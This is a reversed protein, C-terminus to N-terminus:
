LIQDCGNAYVYVAIVWPVSLQAQDGAAVHAWMSWMTEKYAQLGPGVDGLLFRHVLYLFSDLMNSMAQQLIKINYAQKGAEKAEEESKGAGLAAKRAAHYAASKRSVRKKADEKKSDEKAGSTSSKNASNKNEADLVTAPRKKGPKEEVPVKAAKNQAKEKNAKAVRAKNAKPTDVVDVVSTKTRAKKKLPLEEETDKIKSGKAHKRPVKDAKQKSSDNSGQAMDAKGKVKEKQAKLGKQSFQKTGEKEVSKRTSRKPKGEVGEDGNGDGGDQVAKGRGRGRGKGRGRRAEYGRINKLQETPSIPTIQEIAVPCPPNPIEYSTKEKEDDECSDTKTSQDQEKVEGTAEEDQLKSYM